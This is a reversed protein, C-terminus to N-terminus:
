RRIGRASVMAVGALILITGLTKELFGTKEEGILGPNLRSPALSILLVFLLQTYSLASALSVSGKSLALTFLLSAAFDLFVGSFALASFLRTKGSASITGLESKCLLVFPLSSLAFGLKNLLVNVAANCFDAAIAFFFAKGILISGLKKSSVVFAGTVLLFVGSLSAFPLVGGLFVASLLLVFLPTLAFLPVVRSVEGSQM